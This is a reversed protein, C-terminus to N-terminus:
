GNSQHDVCQDSTAWERRRLRAYALEASRAWDVRFFARRVHVAALTGTALSYELARTPHRTNVLMESKEIM